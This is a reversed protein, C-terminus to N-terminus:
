FLEAPDATSLRRLTLLGAGTCMLLSLLLVGAARQATMFIPLRTAQGILGYLALALLLGPLFGLLAFLWSQQLVFRYLRRDAYGMAKLTAYEPLHNRVDSSLVQWLVAMGVLFGLLTGLAFMNGVATDRVWHRVQLDEMESRTLVRADSPLIERLRHAVEGASAGPRLRVLGLHIRDLPHGAFLQSFTEDSMLLAGDGLFGVGLVFRGAITVPQDSVEVEVGPVTRGCSPQSRSDVLVTGTRALSPLLAGAEGVGLPAGERVPFGIAVMTCRGGTGPDKWRAHRVYVPSVTELEPVALAQFLRGQPLTGTEALHVYRSSVIFLDAQLRSSVALATNVVAGHLGLQMFMFLIAFAIGSVAVAARRRRHSLARWAFGGPGLQSGAGSSM